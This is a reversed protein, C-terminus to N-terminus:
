DGTEIDNLIHTVSKMVSELVTKCQRDRYKGREVGTAPMIGDQDDNRSHIDCVIRGRDRGDM